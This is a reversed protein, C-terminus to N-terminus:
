KLSPDALLRAFVDAAPVTDKPDYDPDAAYSEVLRLMAADELRQMAEYDEPSVMVAVDKGHRQIMVGEGSHQVKGLLDSFNERAQSVTVTIM